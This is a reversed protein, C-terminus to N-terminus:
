RSLLGLRKPFLREANGHMAAARDEDDLLSTANLDGLLKECGEVKTFPWDSGYHLRGRDAFHLLAQLTEPVPSGALDYHLLALAARVDDPAQPDIPRGVHMQAPIRGALVPLCAGAHPVIVRINPYRTLTGSLLLHTVVRTTEFLFEILPVPYGFSLDREREGAGTHISCRCHPRTPHLFVVAGRRDLERYIPELERDGLYM